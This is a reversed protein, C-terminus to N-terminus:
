KALEKGIEEGAMGGGIGGILGGIIAGPVAGVGGFWVGIAAGAAAGAEAGIYGVAISGVAGGTAQQANPGFTGGDLTYGEQIKLASIGVGIVPAAKGIGNALGGFKSVNGLKALGNVTADSVVSGNSTASFTQAAINSTSGFKALPASVGGVVDNITGASALVESASITTVTTGTASNVIVTKNAGYKKGSNMDTATGNSNLQLAQGTGAVVNTTKGINDFGERKKSGNFWQINGTAKNQYWDTAEMGDPDIFYVPNNLAYVYTSFRRSKEALPDLNMWRGIAADYNRAGYDYF